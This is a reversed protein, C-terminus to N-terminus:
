GLRINYLLDNEDNWLILSYIHLRNDARYTISKNHMSVGVEVIVISM